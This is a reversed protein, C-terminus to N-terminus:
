FIDITHYVINKIPKGVSKCRNDYDLCDIIM